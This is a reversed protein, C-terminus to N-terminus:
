LSPFYSDSHLHPQRRLILKTGTQEGLQFALRVYISKTKVIDLISYDSRFDKGLLITQRCYLTSILSVHALRWIKLCTKRSSTSPGRPLNRGLSITFVIWFYIYSIQILWIYFMCHHSTCCLFTVVNRCSKMTGQLCGDMRPVIFDNFYGWMWTAIM